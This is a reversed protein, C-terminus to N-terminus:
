STDSIRYTINSLMFQCSFRLMCIRASVIYKNAEMTVGYIETTIPNGCEYHMGLHMIKEKNLFATDELFVAEFSAQIAFTSYDIVTVVM